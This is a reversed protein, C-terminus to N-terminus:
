TAPIRPEERAKHAAPISTLRVSATYRLKRILLRHLRIQSKLLNLYTVIRGHSKSAAIPGPVIEKRARGGM